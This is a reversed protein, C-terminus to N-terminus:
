PLSARSWLAVPVITRSSRGPALIRTGAFAGDLAPVETASATLELTQVDRQLPEQAELNHPQIRRWFRKM